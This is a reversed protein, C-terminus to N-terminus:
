QCAVTQITLGSCPHTHLRGDGAGNLGDCAIVHELMQQRSYHPMLISGFDLIGKFMSSVLMIHHSTRCGALHQFRAVCSVLNIANGVARSIEHLLMSSGKMAQFTSLVCNRWFCRPIKAAKVDDFAHGIELIEVLSPRGGESAPRICMVFLDCAQASALVADAKSFANHVRLANIQHGCISDPARLSCHQRSCHTIHHRANGQLQM